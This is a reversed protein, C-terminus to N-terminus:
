RCEQADFIFPYSRVGSANNALKADNIDIRAVLFFRGNTNAGKPRCSPLEIETGFANTQKAKITENPRVQPTGLLTDRTTIVTNASLRLEFSVTGSFAASSTNHIWSTVHLKQGARFTPEGNLPVGGGTAKYLTFGALALDPTSPTTARISAKIREHTTANLRVFNTRIPSDKGSSLVGMVTNNSGSRLVMGGGSMGTRAEMGSVRYINNSNGVLCKDISFQTEVMTKGDPKIGNSFAAQTAGPYGANLFTSSQAVDCTLSQLKHYGMFGGLESTLQMWAIDFNPNGSGWWANRVHIQKVFVRAKGWPELGYFPDSNGYGPTVEIASAYEQQPVGFPIGPKTVCHAATMVWLSDILTGTCEGGGGSKFSIKLKVRQSIRDSAGPNRIIKPGSSVFQPFASTAIADSDDAPPLLKDPITPEIVEDVPAQPIPLQLFAKGGPAESAPDNIAMVLDKGVTPDNEDTIAPCDVEPDCTDGPLSTGDFTTSDIKAAFKEIATSEADTPTPEGEGSAGDSGGGGCAALACTTALALVWRPLHPQHQAPNKM